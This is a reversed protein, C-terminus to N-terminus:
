KFGLTRLYQKDEIYCKNEDFRDNPLLIGGFSYSKIRYIPFWDDIEKIKYKKPSGKINEIMGTIHRIYPNKNENLFPLTIIYALEGIEPIIMIM